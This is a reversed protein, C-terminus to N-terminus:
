PDKWYGNEQETIKIPLCLLILRLGEEGKDKTSRIDKLPQQEGKRETRRENRNTAKRGHKDLERGRRKERGEEEKKRAKEVDKKSIEGNALKSGGPEETRM